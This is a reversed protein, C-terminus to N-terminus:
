GPCPIERILRKKEDYIEFHHEIEADSLARSLGAVFAVVKDITGAVGGNLMQRGPELPESRFDILESSLILSESEDFGSLYISAKGVGQVDRVAHLVPALGDPIIIHGYVNNGDLFIDM